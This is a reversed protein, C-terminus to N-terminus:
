PDDIREGLAVVRATLDDTAAAVAERVRDFEALQRERLSSHALDTERLRRDLADVKEQLARLDTSLSELTAQTASRGRVLWGFQARLRSVASM